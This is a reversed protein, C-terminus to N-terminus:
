TNAASTLEEREVHTDPIYVASYDDPPGFLPAMVREAQASTFLSLNEPSVDFFLRLSELRAEDPLAITGGDPFRANEPTIQDKTLVDYLQFDRGDTVLAFPAMPHLLRAYSIAQDRDKASLAKAAEKVEIVLLNVGRRRVLIDLRALQHSKSRRGGGIVLTNRGIGISFSTELALEEPVLGRDQLWPLIIRAKVEEENM